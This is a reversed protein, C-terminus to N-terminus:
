KFILNPLWTVLPPIYTILLLVIVLPILFPIVARIVKEVPVKGVDSVIYFLIGMPPTLGGIMLNLTLVVGFHILDIGLSSVLPVFVPTVIILIAMTDLFCGMILLIINIFLLVLLKNQTISLVYNACIQPINQSVLLWSFATASAIIFMISCTVTITEEFISPATYWTIEKYLIGLIIAYFVALAGSETPTVVGVAIGGLIIVPMMLSFFAKGFAQIAQRLTARPRTPMSVKGAFYYVLIMLSLGMAIGPVFGGAFLRGISVEAMVGYIIFVVSPPIIPGITASSACIAASMAPDYGEEKMVKMEIAGMAAAEAVATGSIGAFIMNALISVHGLGGRIHGVMSAAFNFIRTSVGSTNMLQGAFIYFPVALLPFSNLGAALRQALATIPMGVALIYALSSFGMAFALPVRLLILGIFGGVLIVWGYEM